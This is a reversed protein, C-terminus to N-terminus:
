QQYLEQGSDCVIMNAGVASMSHNLGAQLSQYMGARLEPLVLGYLQGATQFATDAGPTIECVITGKGRVRRIVRQLELERMAQRVTNRAVGMKQALDVEPPLLDGPRLQGSTMQGLLMHKLQEYKLQGRRGVVPNGPTLEIM